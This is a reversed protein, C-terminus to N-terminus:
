LVPEIVSDAHCNFLGITMGSKNEKCLTVLDPNKATKVPLKNGSIWEIGDFLQRQRAFSNFLGNNESIELTDFLYVM